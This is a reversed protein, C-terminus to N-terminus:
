VNNNSLQVKESMEQNRISMADNDKKCSKDRVNEEEKSRAINSIVPVDDEIMHLEKVTSTHDATVTDLNESEEIIKDVRKEEDTLSKNEESDHEVSVAKPVEDQVGCGLQKFRDVSLDTESTEKSTEQLSVVEEIEVTESLEAKAPNQLM